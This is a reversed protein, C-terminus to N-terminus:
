SENFFQKEPGRRRGTPTRTRLGATNAPQMTNIGRAHSWSLSGGHAGDDRCVRMESM